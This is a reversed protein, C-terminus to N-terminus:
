RSVIRGILYGGCFCLLCFALVVTLRTIFPMLEAIM